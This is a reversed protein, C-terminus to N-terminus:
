QRGGLIAEAGRKATENFDPNADFPNRVGPNPNLAQNVQSLVKQARANREQDSYVNARPGTEGGGRREPQPPKKPPEPPASPAAAVPRRGPQLDPFSKQLNRNFDELPSKLGPKEYSFFASIPNTKAAVVGKVSQGIKSSLPASAHQAEKASLANTTANSVDKLKLLASEQRKLPRLNVGSTNQAQGYVLERAQRAAEEADALPDAAANQLTPDKAYFNTRRLMKNIGVREADLDGFTVPQKAEIKAAISPRAALEPVEKLMEPSVPMNRIPDIYRRAEAERLDLAKDIGKKLAALGNRGQFDATSVGAAELGEKIAPHAIHAEAPMDFATKSRLAAALHDAPQSYKGEVLNLRKPVAGEEPVDFIAGTLVDAPINIAAKRVTNYDKLQRGVADATGTATDELNQLSHPQRADMADMLGGTGLKGIAEAPNQLNTRVRELENTGFSQAADGVQQAVDGVKKAAAYASGLPSTEMNVQPAPVSPPANSAFWDGGAAPAAPANSAFWDQAPSAM